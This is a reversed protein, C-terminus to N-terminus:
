GRGRRGQRGCCWFESQGRKAAKLLDPLAKAIAGPMAKVVAASVAADIAAKDIAAPQMTGLALSMLDLRDNIAKATVVFSKLAAGHAALKRGLM